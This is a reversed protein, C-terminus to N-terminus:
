FLAKTLLLHGLEVRMQVSIMLCSRRELTYMCIKLHPICPCTCRATQPLCALLKVDHSAAPFVCQGYPVRLGVQSMCGGQKRSAVAGSLLLVPGPPPCRLPKRQTSVPLLAIGLEKIAPCM